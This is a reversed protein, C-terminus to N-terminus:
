FPVRALEFLLLGAIVRVAVFVTGLALAYGTFHLGAV